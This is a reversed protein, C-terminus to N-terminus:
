GAGSGLHSVADQHHCLAADDIVPDEQEAQVVDVAPRHLPVLAELQEAAGSFDRPAQV